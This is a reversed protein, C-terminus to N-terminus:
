CHPVTAKPTRRILNTADLLIPVGEELLNAMLQHCAEFLRASEVTSYTLEPFLVQRLNASELVLLPVQEVLRSSFHSKGTGPLGSVVVLVPPNLVTGM